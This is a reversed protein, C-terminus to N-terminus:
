NKSDAFISPHKVMYLQKVKWYLSTKSVTKNNVDNQFKKFFTSLMFVM